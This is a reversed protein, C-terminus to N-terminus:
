PLYAVDICKDAEPTGQQGGVLTICVRSYGRALAPSITATGNASFSGPDGAHTQQMDDIWYVTFMHNATGVLSLQTSTLAIATTTFAPGRVAAPSATLGGGAPADWRIRGVSGAGGSNGNASGGAGGAAKLTGTALTGGARVMIVGGAGGGGGTGSAGGNGGSVDIAGAMIYGGATLEVTGGGGGGAGGATLTASGGGGGGAAHDAKNAMFGAYTAIMDDGVMPGGPGAGGGQGATGMTAFGGGGGGGTGTLTGVNAGAGGGDCPANAASSAGDCGGPGATGNNSGSASKGKATIAGIDISSVSRLLVPQNQGGTFTFSMGTLDIKSYKAALPSGDTPPPHTADLEAHGQLSLKGALMKSVTSGNAPQTVTITLPITNSEGIATDVHATVPVAIYDAAPSMALQTNDVDVHITSTATIAVQAGTVFNSGHIVLVAPRSSGDGQGEDIISPAAGDISLNVPNADIAVDPPSDIAADIPRPSINSPNYILSCGGVLFALGLNALHQRM